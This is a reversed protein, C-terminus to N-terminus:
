GSTRTSRWTELLDPADPPRLAAAVDLNRERLATEVAHPAAEATDSLLYPLGLDSHGPARQTLLNRFKLRAADGADRVRLYDACLAELAISLRDLEDQEKARANLANEVAAALADADAPPTTM